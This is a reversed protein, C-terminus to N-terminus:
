NQLQLMSELASIICFYNYNILKRLNALLFLTVKEEWGSFFFNITNSHIKVKSAVTRKQHFAFISM